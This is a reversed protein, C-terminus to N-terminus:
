CHREQNHARCGPDPSEPWGACMMENLIGKLRNIENRGQELAAEELKIRELAEVIDASSSEKILAAEKMAGEIGDMVEDVMESVRLGLSAFSKQLRLFFDYRVRGCHREFLHQVEDVKQRRLAHHALKKPLVKTVAGAFMELNAPVDDLKFWFEGREDIGLDNEMQYPPIGFLEGAIELVRNCIINTKDTIRLSISRFESSLKEEEEQRWKNFMAVIESKVFDNLQSTLANGSLDRNEFFFSDLKAMFPTLNSSKFDAVDRDLCDRVIAKLDGDVMYLIEDRERRISNMENRFQAAKDELEELPRLLFERELGIGMLTELVASELRRLVSELLLIGKEKLLFTELRSTLLEINSSDVLAHDGKIQGVLAQKASLAFVEIGNFDLEESIVRRNFQLSEELEADDLYDKKNLIFFVKNVNGTIERLFRVEDKSVPPDASLMFMVADAQTLYSYAVEDNHIYTSGTGPTDVICLGDKLLEAPYLVEVMRVGLVNDPNNKETVYSAIDDPSVEDVRGDLYHVSASFNDGFRILTNISTLPVVASPLIETGLLSNIFTTKGRKFQGMVVIHFEQNVLREIAETARLAILDSRSYGNLNRLLKASTIVMESLHKYSEM